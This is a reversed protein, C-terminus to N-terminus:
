EGESNDPPGDSLSFSLPADDDGSESESDNAATGADSSTPADASEHGDTALEDANVGVNGDALSIDEAVASVDTGYEETQFTQTPKGSDEAGVAEARVTSQPGSPAEGVPHCRDAPLSLRSSFSLELFADAPNPSPHRVDCQIRTTEFRRGDGIAVVPRTAQHLTITTRQDALLDVIESPALPGTSTDPEYRLAAKPIPDRM